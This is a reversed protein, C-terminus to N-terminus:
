FAAPRCYIARPQIAIMALQQPETRGQEMGQIRQRKLVEFEAEPFTPERLVEGVLKLTAELNAKKESLPDIGQTMRGFWVAAQKRAATVSMTPWEGIVRRVPASKRGGMGDPRNTMKRQVIFAIRAKSASDTPAYVRIAFGPTKSDRVIWDKTPSPTAIKHIADGDIATIRQAFVIDKLFSETIDTRVATDKAM